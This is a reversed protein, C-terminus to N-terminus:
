KRVFARWSGRESILRVRGMEHGFIKDAPPGGRVLLLDLDELARSANFESPSSFSPLASVRDPNRMQCPTQPDACYYLWTSSGPAARETVYYVPIGAFIGGVNMVKSESDFVLGGSRVGAPSAEVVQEFDALERGFAAYHRILNLSYVSLVLAVLAALAAKRRESWNSLRAPIMLLLLLALVVVFRPYISYAHPVHHPLGFYAVTGVAILGSAAKPRPVARPRRFGWTVVGALMAAGILGFFVQAAVVDSGDNFGRLLHVPAGRFRNWLDIRVSHERLERLRETLVARLFSPETRFHADNATRIVYIVCALLSPALAALGLARRRWPVSGLLVAAAAAVVGVAWAELHAFFTVLSLAGLLFTSQLPRARWGNENSAEALMWVLFPLAVVFAMLGFHLPMSYALAFALLAPVTDRGSVALLRATSLPLALVVAGVLVKVAVNVSMFAALARLVVFHVAFPALKLGVIFDRAYPSDPHSAKTLADVIALHHPLDFAPIFPTAFLPALYLPALALYARAFRRNGMLRAARAREIFPIRM